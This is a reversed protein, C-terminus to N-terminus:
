CDQRAYQKALDDADSIADAPYLLTLPAASLPWVESSFIASPPACTLILPAGSQIAKLKKSTDAIEAVLQLMGAVPVEPSSEALRPVLDAFLVHQNGGAVSVTYLLLHPLKSAAGTLVLVREHMESLAAIELTWKVVVLNLNTYKFQDCPLIEVKGKMNEDSESGFVITTAPASSSPLCGEEGLSRLIDQILMSVASDAAATRGELGETCLHEQWLCLCATTSM